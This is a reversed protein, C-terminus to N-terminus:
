AVPCCRAFVLTDRPLGGINPRYTAMRRRAEFELGVRRLVSASRENEYDTTAWIRLVTPQQQLWEVVLSASESAFGKGWHPEAIFYGFDADSGNVRCAICGVLATSENVEIVWHFETGEGWRTVCGELYAKAESEESQMAWDMYRMVNPNAAARFVGASDSPASRRLRVRRGQIIEPPSLM